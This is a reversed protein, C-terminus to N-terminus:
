PDQPKLLQDLVAFAGGETSTPCACAGQNLDHGCRPCLGRCGTRCQPALPVLSELEQRIEEGIPLEDGEYFAISEGPDDEDEAGGGQPGGKPEFQISFDAELPAEFEKLCRSCQHRVQTEARVRGFVKDDFRKLEFRVRVGPGAFPDALGLDMFSLQLEQAQAGQEPVRKLSFNYM